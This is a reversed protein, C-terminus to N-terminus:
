QGIGITRIRASSSNAEPDSSRITNLRTSTPRSVTSMCKLLFDVSTPAILTRYKLPELVTLSCAQGQWRCCCLWLRWARLLYRVQLQLALCVEKSIQSPQGKFYIRNFSRITNLRGVTLNTATSSSWHGVACIMTM